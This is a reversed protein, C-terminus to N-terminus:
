LCLWKPQLNLYACKSPDEITLRCMLVKEFGFEKMTSSVNKMYSCYYFMHGKRGCNYCTVNVHNKRCQRNENRSCEHSCHKAKEDTSLKFAANWEHM